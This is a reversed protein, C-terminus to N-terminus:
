RRLIIPREHDNAPREWTYQLVAEGDAPVALSFSATGADKKVHPHSQKSITWDGDLAERVEVAAAEVGHNRIRIEVETVVRRALTVRQKVKREAALDFAAGRPIRVEEDKPTHDISAEAVQEAEGDRDLAMLRIRGAPLPMGLRSEKANRFVLFTQVKPDMAAEYIYESRYPVEQAGLLEIQKTEQDKLTTPRELTYLHYDAFAKEAFDGPRDDALTKEQDMIQREGWRQKVRHVDGAILKLQAEPYTAGSQNTVTVWGALDLAKENKLTLIYDAQWSMGGTLYAVTAEHRRAKPAELVWALAPRTLLGGPLEPLVPEGPFATLVEGAPTRVAGAPSLLTGKLRERTETKPDLREFGLERDVYKGLLKERNVLDYEFNQELVRCGEPDTDSRFRVSTPDMRAPVDEFRFRNVGPRLNLIQRRDRVLALDDNFVTVTFGKKLVQIDGWVEPPGGPRFAWFALAALLGAAAAPIWRRRSVPPKVQLPPRHLAAFHGRLLAEQAELVGRAERCAPCGALHAELIGVEEVPLIGSLLGMLRDQIEPCTM